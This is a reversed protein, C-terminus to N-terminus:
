KVIVEIPLTHHVVYNGYKSESESPQQNGRADTARAMITHIGTSPTKWRYEWFRWAHRLPEGLLDAPQYRHGGDTSVEVRAVESDGTWAAGIVHYEANAPVVEHLAPRAIQAKVKMESIPVRIPMGAQEEWYAYDVTQFYGRFPRDTVVIRSLWKVSAMGYWGAVVARLPAGHSSPLPEGNMRFALLVDAAKSIPIAHSYRLAEPPRPPEDPKGHDAGELIVEVADERVGAKALVDWLMVGTWEATSVAGLEWQAGSAKPVLFIRGNGACELTVMRQKVPLNMLDALSLQLERDVLGEIRLRWAQVDIAPKPFHSRVYFQENPTTFTNLSQFPFELNEPDKQRIIQGVAGPPMTAPTMVKGTM